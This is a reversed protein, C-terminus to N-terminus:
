GAAPSTTPERWRVQGQDHRFQQIWVIRLREVAPLRCLWFRKTEDFLATLLDHSEAGVVEALSQRAALSGPLRYQEVRAGYRELWDPRTHEILWQPASTAVANLAARMTEGVFELRSAASPPWSM